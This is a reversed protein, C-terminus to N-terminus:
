MIKSKRKVLISVFLSIVGLGFIGIGIYLENNKFFDDNNSNSEKIKGITTIPKADEEKEKNIIKFKYSVKDDGDTAQIEIISGNTLNENGLIESKATESSLTVNFNLNEETTEIEYSYVDSKFEFEVEKIVINSVIPLKEERTINLKYTREAGDEAIVKVPIENLGIKLDIDSDYEVKAKDSTPEATIKIKEIENKCSLDYNLTGSAFKFAINDITLTKLTTDDSKYDSKIINITYTKINGNQAQIKIPATTKEGSLTVEREGYGTVFSANMDKLTAKVSVKTLKNDVLVDYELKDSSLVVQNSGVTLSALSNDSIRTDDRIINLTYTKSDKSNTKNTVVFEFKNEGYNLKVVGLSGRGIYANQDYIFAIKLTEADGGYKLNYTYIESNFGELDKDNIKINTVYGEAFVNLFTVFFFFLFLFVKKM